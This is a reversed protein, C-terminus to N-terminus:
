LNLENYSCAYRLNRAHINQEFIQCLRILGRYHHTENINDLKEGDARILITEEVMYDVGLIVARPTDM